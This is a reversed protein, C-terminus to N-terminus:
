ARRESWCRNSKGTLYKVLREYRESDERLQRINKLMGPVRDPTPLVWAEGAFETLEVHHHAAPDGDLPGNGFRAGSFGLM